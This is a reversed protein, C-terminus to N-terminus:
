RTDFYSESGPVTGVGVYFHALPTDSARFVDKWKVTLQDNQTVYDIDTGHSTSLVEKVSRSGSILPAQTNTRIGDSTFTAYTQEDYWARLYFVYYLNAKM